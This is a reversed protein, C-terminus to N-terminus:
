ATAEQLDKASLGVGVMKKQNGSAILFLTRAFYTAMFVNVTIGVLLTLAFGRISGTGYNLLVFAGIATTINSDLIATFARDFGMELVQRSNRGARIEERMREFIIILADGAMGITLVIGAIGPLTLTAGMSGLIAFILSVNVLTVVNAILGATGYYIPMLLFVFIAAVFLSKKGSDIAEQGISPGIVREEQIEISTPLAGARLVIATDRAENNTEELSGGGVTIQGSGATIASQIVPASRIIGDLVIAMYYGRFDTTLKSLMPTGAPNMQFSVVPREPGTSLGSGRDMRVFAEQIYEGSLINKTSLLFPILQINGVVNIDREREFAVTTDPPLQGKLDTNIRDRYESLRKFSDRNYKGAEEASKIKSQLDARQKMLCDPTTCEHVIQFNLQATQGILSKLREPEKAGPFQILLQDEGKRSIVPEAVGFEDIRNRITEISQSVANNRIYDQQIRSIRMVLLSNSTSLVDLVSYQKGVYAAAKEADAQSAFTMELEQTDKNVSIKTASVNEKKLDGELNRGYSAAQDYIVKNLDVGMVLQVGGKLDLGLTMATNPMWSPLKEAQPNNLSYITPALLWLSFLTIFGCVFVRIKLSKDM